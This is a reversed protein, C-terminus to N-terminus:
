PGLLYYQIWLGFILIAFILVLLLKDGLRATNIRSIIQTWKKSAWGTTSDAEAEIHLQSMVKSAKRSSSSSARQSDAVKSCSKPSGM